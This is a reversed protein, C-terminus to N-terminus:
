KDSYKEVSFVADPYTQIFDGVEGIVNIELILEEDLPVDRPASYKCYIEHSGGRNGRCWTWLKAFTDDSCFNFIPKGDRNRFQGKLRINAKVPTFDKIKEPIWVSIAHKGRQVHIVKMTVNSGSFSCESFVGNREVPVVLGFCWEYFPIWTRRNTLHAKFDHFFIFAFIGVFFLLVGGVLRLRKTHMMAIAFPLIFMGWTGSVFSCLANVYRTIYDMPM